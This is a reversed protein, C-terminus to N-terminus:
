CSSAFCARTPIQGYMLKLSLGAAVRSAVLHYLAGKLRGADFEGNTILGAYGSLPRQLASVLLGRCLRWPSRSSAISVAAGAGPTRLHYIGALAM